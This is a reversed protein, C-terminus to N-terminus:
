NGILEIVRTEVYQQIARIVAEDPIADKQIIVIPQLQVDSLPGRGNPSSGGVIALNMNQGEVTAVQRKVFAEFMLQRSYSQDDPRLCNARPRVHQWKNRAKAEQDLVPALSEAIDDRVKAEYNSRVDYVTLCISGYFQFFRLSANARESAGCAVLALLVLSLMASLRRFPALMM